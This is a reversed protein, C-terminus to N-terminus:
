ATPHFALKMPEPEILTPGGKLRSWEHQSRAKNQLIVNVEVKEKIRLPVVGSNVRASSCGEIYATLISSSLCGISADPEILQEPASSLFDYL